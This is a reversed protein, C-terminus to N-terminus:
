DILLPAVQEISQFTRDFEMDALRRENERIADLQNYVTAETLGKARAIQETDWGM